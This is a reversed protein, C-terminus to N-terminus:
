PCKALAEQVSEVSPAALRSDDTSRSRLEVRGEHFERGFIVQIPYGILDAEAFKVGATVDRDDLVVSIGENVLEKYLKEASDIALPDQSVLLLVVESPALARPWKIGSEDHHSDVLAGVM